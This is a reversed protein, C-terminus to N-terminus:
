AVQEPRDVDLTPAQWALLRAPTLGALANVERTLHAQDAYGAEAAADALGRTDPALALFRQLRQVRQYTKPTLGTTDLMIRRLQRDTIGILDATDRVSRRTLLKVATASRRDPAIGRLWRDLQRDDLLRSCNRAGFVDDGPISLNRLSAGPTRFAAAVAEPRLRIGRVRTGAALYPLDVRDHLGVVEVRESEYILLDAHGDPLVRQVRDAAVTQAWCCAVAHRWQPPPGWERYTDNM